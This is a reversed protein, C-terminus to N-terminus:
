EDHFRMCWEGELKTLFAAGDQVARLLEPNDTHVLTWPSGCSLFFHRDSFEQIYNPDVRGCLANAGNRWAHTLLHDLVEGYFRKRGVIQLVEGMGDPGLRYLYWGVLDGDADRLAVKQLSGPHASQEAKSMLWFLAHPDYDPRLAYGNPLQRIGALFTEKDLMSERLTTVPRGFRHPMAKSAIADVVPYLPWLILALVRLALSKQALFRLAYRGPRVLRLWDFSYAMATVGGLGNWIKRGIVGASDTLSLDQPGAFLAKLLQIGALTSRSGPEVMFHMSVAARIPKGNLTMRRPAIGIFGTIQGNSAEYVLSTIAEETRSQGGTEDGARGNRERDGRSRGNETGENETWPSHFFYEEFYDTLKSASPTEQGNNFFVKQFLEVVQPIDNKVFPRVPNM